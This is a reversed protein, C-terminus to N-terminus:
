EVDEDGRNEFIELVLEKLQRMEEASVKVGAKAQLWVHRMYVPIKSDIYDLLEKNDLAEMMDYNHGKEEDIVNMSAPSIINKKAENRTQWANFLECDTRNQFLKCGDPKIYAKLPCNLCPKDLRIFNDRKFNCMRNRIHVWLFNELPLDPRYDHLGELGKRIAEQKIDERGYSGFTFKWSLRDAIKDIINIIEAETMGTDELLQASINLPIDKNKRSM